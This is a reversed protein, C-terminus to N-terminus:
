APGAYPQPPLIHRQWSSARSTFGTLLSSPSPLAAACQVDYWLQVCCCVHVIGYTGRAAHCMAPCMAHCAKCRAAHMAAQEKGEAVQICVFPSGDLLMLSGYSADLLWIFWAELLLIVCRSATLFM